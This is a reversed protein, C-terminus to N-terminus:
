SGARAPQVAAVITAWTPADVPAIGDVISALEEDAVNTASLEVVLEAESFFVRATPRPQASDLAPQEGREIRVTRRGMQAPQGPLIQGGTDLRTIITVMAAGPNVLSLALVPAPSCADLPQASLVFRQWGAPVVTPALLQAPGVCPEEPQPATAVLDELTRQSAPVLGAVFAELDTRSLGFAEVRVALNPRENWALEFAAYGTGTVLGEVVRIRRGAITAETGIPPDLPTDGVEVQHFSVSAPTGPTRYDLSATRLTAPGICDVSEPCDVGPEVTGAALTLQVPPTTPLLWRWGDDVVTTM